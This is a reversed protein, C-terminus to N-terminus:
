RVAEAGATYAQEGEETEGGSQMRVSRGAFHAGVEIALEQHFIDGDIVSGSKLSAKRCYVSGNVNGYVVITEAKIDGVVHGNRGVIFNKCVVNGFVGGDLRAHGNCRVNGEITFDSSIASSAEGGLLRYLVEFGRWRRGKPTPADLRHTAELAPVNSQNGAM